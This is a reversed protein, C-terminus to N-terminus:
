NTKCNEELEIPITYTTVIDYKSTANILLYTDSEKFMKCTSSYHELEIDITKLYDELKINEKEDCSSIKTQTDKYSEYLTCEIKSYVENNVQGCYEINSIHIATKNKNYAVTGNITFNDCTTGIQKFTFDENHKSFIIIIILVIILVSLAVILIYNKNRKINNTEGDLLDDIDINYLRKIEKLISIDPINKANEWKSVAQYTVGLKDAFEKQTLNNKIRIEKILKAIKENDM